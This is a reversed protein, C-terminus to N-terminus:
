IIDYDNRGSPSKALRTDDVREWHFGGATLCHVRGGHETAGRAVKNITSHWIGTKRCADRASRYIIGTEVCRVPKNNTKRGLVRHGHKKNESDTVWELNSISYDLKDGNIHNVEPKNEPNPIFANAVLRHIAGLHNKGDIGYLSVAPYGTTTIREKMLVPEGTVACINRCFSRVRGLNSIQYRGEYGSIDKWIEGPLDIIKQKPIIKGTSWKQKYHQTCLGGCKAPKNCWGVSCNKNSM